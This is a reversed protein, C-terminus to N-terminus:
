KCLEIAQQESFVELRLALFKARSIKAMLAAAQIQAPMEDKLKQIALYMEQTTMTENSM